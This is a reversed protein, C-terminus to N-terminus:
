RNENSDKVTRRLQFSDIAYGAGKFAGISAQNHASVHAIIEAIELAHQALYYTGAEILATGLGSGQNGPVLYVSITAQTGELDFRLVGVPSGDREGIVLLRDARVIMNSFWQTHTEWSIPLGDGSYSRTVEDNRWIYLNRCDEATARRLVIQTAMLVKVVRGVGRGDVYESACAGIAKVLFRNACLVRLLRQIHDTTVAEAQGLYLCGGAVALDEAVRRQNEAVAIVLGPMALVAREWTSVGGAGIALDARAMLEAM